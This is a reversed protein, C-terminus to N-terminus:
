VLGRGLKEYADTIDVPSRDIPEVEDAPFLAVTGTWPDPAGPLYVTVEGAASREVELGIRATGAVRVRVPRLTAGGLNGTLQDKFVAYRPFLMLLYREAQGTFWRGLSWRAIVGALFCLGLLVAIATVLLLAYAWWSLDAYEAIEEHKALYDMVATVAPEALMVLQVILWIVVALPLLFVIGGLLTTRLVGFHHEVHRRM